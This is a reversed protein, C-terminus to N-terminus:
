VLVFFSAFLHLFEVLYRPADRKIQARLYTPLSIGERHAQYWFTFLGKRLNRLSVLRSRNKALILKKKM